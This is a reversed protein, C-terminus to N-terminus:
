AMRIRSLLPKQLLSKYIFLFWGWDYLSVEEPFVGLLNLAQFPSQTDIM